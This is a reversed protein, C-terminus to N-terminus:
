KYLSWRDHRLIRQPSTVHQTVTPVILWSRVKRSCPCSSRNTEHWSSQSLSVAAEKVIQQVVTTLM